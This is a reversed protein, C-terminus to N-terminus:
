EEKIVANKFRLEKYRLENGEVKDLDINYYIEDDYINYQQFYLRYNGKFYDSLWAIRRNLKRMGKRKLIM